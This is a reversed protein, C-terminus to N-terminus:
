NPTSPINLFSIENHNSVDIHLRKTIAWTHLLDLYNRLLLAHLPSTVIEYLKSDDAYLLLLMNQLQILLKM